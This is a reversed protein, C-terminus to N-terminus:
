LPTLKALVPEIVLVPAPAAILIEEFPLTTFAPDITSVADVPVPDVMVKVDVLAPIEPAPVIPSAM